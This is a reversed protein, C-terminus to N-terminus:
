HHAPRRLGTAPRAHLPVVRGGAGGSGSPGARHPAIRRVGGAECALAEYEALRRERAVESALAEYHRRAVRSDRRRSVPRGGGVEAPLLPAVAAVGTERRDTLDALRDLGYLGGMAKRDLAARGLRGALYSVLAVLALAAVTGLLRM